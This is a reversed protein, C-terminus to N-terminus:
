QTSSLTFCLYWWLVNWYFLKIHEKIEMFSVWIIMKILKKTNSTNLIIKNICYSNPNYISLIYKQCMESDNM